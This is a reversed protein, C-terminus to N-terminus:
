PIYKLVGRDWMIKRQPILRVPAKHVLDAIETNDGVNVVALGSQGIAKDL